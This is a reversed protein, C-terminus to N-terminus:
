RVTFPETFEVKTRDATMLNLLWRKGYGISPNNLVEDVRREKLTYITEQMDDVVFCPHSFNENNPSYFEINEICNNFGLYLIKAEQSRDEPYRVITFLGLAQVYLPDNEDIKESYIGIHHIRKSIRRESLFKGKTRKHLGDQNLKIFELVNGSGDTMEFSDNGAADKTVSAPVKIGKQQLFLRMGEVNDTELSYSVM